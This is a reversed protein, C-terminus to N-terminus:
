PGFGRYGSGWGSSRPGLGSAHAVYQDVGLAGRCTGFVHGWCIAFDLGQVALVELGLGRLM